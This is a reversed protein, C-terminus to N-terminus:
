SEIGEGEDGDMMLFLDHGVRREELREKRTSGM